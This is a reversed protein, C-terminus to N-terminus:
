PGAEVRITVAFKRGVDSEWSRGYTLELTASGAKLATITWRHGGTGGVGSARTFGADEVRFVPSEASVVKWSYGATRTEALTLHAQDGAALRM